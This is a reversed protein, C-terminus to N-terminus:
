SISSRFRIFARNGSSSRRTLANFGAAIRCSFFFRVYRNSSASRGSVLTSKGNGCFYHISYSTKTQPRATEAGVATLILYTETEEERDDLIWCM